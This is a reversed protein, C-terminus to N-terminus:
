FVDNTQSTNATYTYDTKIRAKCKAKTCRWSQNGTQLIKLAGVVTIVM